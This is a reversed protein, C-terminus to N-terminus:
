ATADAGLQTIIFAHVRECTEAGDVDFDRVREDRRAPAGQALPEAQRM